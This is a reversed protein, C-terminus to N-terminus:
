QASINLPVYFVPCVTTSISSGIYVNFILVVDQLAIAIYVDGMERPRTIKKAIGDSKVYTCLLTPFYKFNVHSLIEKLNEIYVILHSM